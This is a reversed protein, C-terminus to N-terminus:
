RGVRRLIENRVLEAMENLLQEDELVPALMGGVAQRSWIGEDQAVTRPGVGPYSGEEIRIAYPMPNSFTFGYTGLPEVATWGHFLNLTKGKPTGGRVRNWITQAVDELGVRVADMVDNLDAITRRYSAEEIRIEVTM